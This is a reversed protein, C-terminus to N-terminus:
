KLGSVNFGSGELALLRIALGSKIEPYQDKPVWQAIASKTPNGPIFLIQDPVGDEWVKQYEVCMLESLRDKQLCPHERSPRERTGLEHLPGVALARAPTEFSM